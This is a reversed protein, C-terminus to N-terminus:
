KLLDGFPGGCNQETGRTKPLHSVRWTGGGKGRRALVEKLRKAQSPAQKQM